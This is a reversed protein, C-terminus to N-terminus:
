GQPRRVHLRAGSAHHRRNGACLRLDQSVIDSFDSCLADDFYAVAGVFCVGSVALVVLASFLDQPSKVAFRAGGGSNTKMGIGMRLGRRAIGPASRKDQRFHHVTRRRAPLPPGHDVPGTIGKAPRGELDHRGLRPPESKVFKDADALSMATPEMGLAIRKERVPASTSSRASSPTSSTWSPSRRIRLHSCRLM